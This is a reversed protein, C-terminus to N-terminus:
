PLLVTRYFQNGQPAVGNTFAVAGTANSVTILNNWSSLNTSWQVQYYREAAGTLNCILNTGVLHPSQIIGQGNTTQISLTIKPSAYSNIGFILVDYNGADAAQLNTMSFSTQIPVLGSEGTYNTANLIPIGDKRWQVTVPYEYAYANYGIGFTVTEGPIRVQSPSEYFISDDIPYDFDWNPFMLGYNSPAAYGNTGANLTMTISSEPNAGGGNTYNVLVKYYVWQGPYVTSDPQVAANYFGNTYYPIVTKLLTPKCHVIQGVAQMQDLQPGAVIQVTGNTPYENESDIYYDPIEIDGDTYTDNTNSFPLVGCATPQTGGYTYDLTLYAMQSPVVGTVNQVLVMYYGCNTSQANAVQFTANTAGVINTGNFLWQYGTAGTASVTYTATNGPYVTTNTPSATIVPLAQGFGACVTLALAMLVLTARM